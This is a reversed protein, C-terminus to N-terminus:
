STKKRRRSNTRRLTRPTRTTARRRSSCPSTTSSTKTFRACSLRLTKTAATNKKLDDILHKIAIDAFEENLKKIQERQEKEWKPIDRVANELEAQASNLEALVEQQEEETLKEFAEPSLVEGDRTPAVVLGVPM